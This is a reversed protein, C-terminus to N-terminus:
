LFAFDSSFCSDSIDYFHLIQRFARIVLIMFITVVSPKQQKMELREIRKGLGRELEKIMRDVVLPRWDGCLDM